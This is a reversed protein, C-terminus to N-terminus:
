QRVPLRAIVVREGLWRATARHAEECLRSGDWNRMRRLHVVFSVVDNRQGSHCRPEGRDGLLHTNLNIWTERARPNYVAFVTNETHTRVLNAQIPLSSHFVGKFGAHLEACFDSQEPLTSVPRQRLLNDTSKAQPLALVRLRVSNAYLLNPPHIRALVSRALDNMCHAPRQVPARIATSPHIM